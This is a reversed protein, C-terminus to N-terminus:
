RGVSTSTSHPSADLAARTSPHRGRVENWCSMASMTCCSVCAAYAITYLFILFHIHFYDNSLIPTNM